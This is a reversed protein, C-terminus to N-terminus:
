LAFARRVMRRIFYPIFSSSPFLFCLSCCSPSLNIQTAQIGEGGLKKNEKKREKEYYRCRPPGRLFHKFCVTFKCRCSMRRRRAGRRIFSPFPSADARWFRRNSRVSRLLVLKNTFTTTAHNTNRRFFALHFSFPRCCPRPGTYRHSAPRQLRM